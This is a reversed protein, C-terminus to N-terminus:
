LLASGLRVTKGCVSMMIGPLWGVKFRESHIVDLGAEQLLDSCAGTTYVRFFASDTLKLWISCLKCTPFDDCWDV